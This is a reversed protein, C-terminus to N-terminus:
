DESKIVRGSVFFDHMEMAEKLEKPIAWICYERMEDWYGNMHQNRLQINWTQTTPEATVYYEFVAKSKQPPSKKAAEKAKNSKASKAADQRAEQRNKM